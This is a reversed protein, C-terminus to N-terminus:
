VKDRNLCTINQPQDDPTNTGFYSQLKALIQMNDSRHGIKTMDTESSRQLASAKVTM